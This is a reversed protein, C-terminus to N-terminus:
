VVGCWVVGVELGLGETYPKRGVCVLLVDCEMLEERGGKVAEMSVKVGGSSTRNARTVKTNM